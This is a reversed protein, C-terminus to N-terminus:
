WKCLLHTVSTHSRIDPFLSSMHTVLSWPETSAGRAVIMNLHERWGLQSQSNIAMTSPTQLRVPHPQRSSCVLFVKTGENGTGQAFRSCKPSPSLSGRLHWVTETQSSLFVSLPHSLFHCHMCCFQWDKPPMQDISKIIHKFKQDARFPDPLQVLHDNYTGELLFLRNWDM